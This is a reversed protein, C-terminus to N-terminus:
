LHTGEREEGRGVRVKSLWRHTKNSGRKGAYRTAGDEVRGKRGKVGM